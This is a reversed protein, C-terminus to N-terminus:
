LAGLGAAERRWRARLFVGLAADAGDGAARRDERDGVRPRAAGMVAAVASLSTNDTKRRATRLLGICTPLRVKACTGALAYRCLLRVVGFAGRPGKEKGSDPLHNISCWCVSGRTKVALSTALRRRRLLRVTSFSASSPTMGPVRM